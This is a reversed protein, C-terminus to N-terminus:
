INLSCSEREKVVRRVVKCCCSFRGGAYVRQRRRELIPKSFINQRREVEEKGM